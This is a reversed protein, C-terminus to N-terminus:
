PLLGARWVIAVCAGSLAIGAWFGFRFRPRRLPLALMVAALSGIICLVGIVSVIGFVLWDPMM